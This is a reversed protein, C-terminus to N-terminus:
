KEAQEKKLQEEEYEKQLQEEEKNKRNIFLYLKTIVVFVVFMAIYGFWSPLGYAVSLNWVVALVM